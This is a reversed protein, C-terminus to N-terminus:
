FLNPLTNLLNSFLPDFIALIAGFLILISSGLVIYDVTKEKITLDYIKNQHQLNSFTEIAVIGQQGFREFEALAVKLLEIETIKLVLLPKFAEDLSKTQKYIAAVNQILKKQKPIDIGEAILLLTKDLPLNHKAAIEFLYSMFLLNRKLAKLQMQEILIPVPAFILCMGIGLLLTSLVSAKIAYGYLIGCIAAATGFLVVYTKTNTHRLTEKRPKSTAFLILSGLAYLCVAVAIASFLFLIKM